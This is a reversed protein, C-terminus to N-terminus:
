SQRGSVSPATGRPDIESAPDPSPPKTKSKEVARAAKKLFDSAQKAGEGDLLDRKLVDNQLLARLEDIEVRCGPCVRRIERRLVTLMADDLLLAAVTFTNTAQRQQYFATMSSKTFAERSLNGLCEIVQPSRPNAQLADFEFVLSRDIPQRFHVKYIQWAIGNTLVVWEIGNNAGYDIAQKIHNEKLAVGVAKAELLFRVDNDVRVALDVYTGRIAHETTIETYKKYGLIDALMDGIIVVTDSENVDRDKAGGLIAQYRKLQSTIREAVKNSIAM